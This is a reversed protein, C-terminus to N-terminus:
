VTLRHEAEIRAGYRFVEAVLLILGGIALHAINIGGPYGASDLPALNPGIGFAEISYGLQSASAFHNLAPMALSGAVILWGIGRLYQVARSGFVRGTAATALLRWLLLLM